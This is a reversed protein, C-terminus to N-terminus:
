LPILSDPCATSTPLHLFRKDAFIPNICCRQLLSELILATRVAFTSQLSQLGSLLLRSVLLHMWVKERDSRLMEAPVSDINLRMRFAAPPPLVIDRDSF